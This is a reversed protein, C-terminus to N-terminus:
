ALLHDHAPERGPQQSAVQRSSAKHLLLVARLEEAAAPGPVSADLAHSKVFYLADAKHALEVQVVLAIRLSQWPAAEKRPRARFTQPNPQHQPIVILDLTERREVQARASPSVSSRPMWNVGGSTRPLVRRM